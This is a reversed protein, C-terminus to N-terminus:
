GHEMDCHDDFSLVLLVSVEKYIPTEDEVDILLNIKGCDKTVRIFFNGFVGCFHDYRKCYDAKADIWLKIMKNFDSRKIKLVYWDDNNIDQEKIFLFKSNAGVIESIFPTISINLEEEM